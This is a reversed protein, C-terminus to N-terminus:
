DLRDHRQLFSDVYTSEGTEFFAPNSTDRALFDKEHRRMQLHQSVVKKSM